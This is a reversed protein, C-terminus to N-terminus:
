SRVRRQDSPCDLFWSVVLSVPLGALGVMLVWDIMSDDIGFRPFAIDAFEVLAFLATCYLLALRMVKRKRLQDLFSNM